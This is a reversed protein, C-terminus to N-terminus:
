EERKIKYSTADCKEIGDSLIHREEQTLVSRFFGVLAKLVGGKYQRANLGEYFEEADPDTALMEVLTDLRAAAAEPMAEPKRVYDRWVFPPPIKEFGSREMGVKMCIVIDDTTYKRLISSRTNKAYAIVLLCLFKINARAPVRSRVQYRRLSLQLRIRRYHM